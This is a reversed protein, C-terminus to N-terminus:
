APRCRSTPCASSPTWRCRRSTSSSSTPSAARRRSSRSRTSPRTSWAAATRRGGHGRGRPAAAGLRHDGRRPQGPHLRRPHGHPAGPPAAAGQRHGPVRHRRRHPRARHEPRRRGVAAIRLDRRGVAVSVPTMGHGYLVAPIIDEARMRRAAPSGTPRGTNAVLVTSAMALSGEAFLSERAPFVLAAISAAPGRRGVARAGRGNRVRSQARQAPVLRLSFRRLTGAM